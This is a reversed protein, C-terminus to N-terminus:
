IRMRFAYHRAVNPQMCTALAAAKVTYAVALVHALKSEHMQQMLHSMACSDCNFQSDFLHLKKKMVFNVEIFM